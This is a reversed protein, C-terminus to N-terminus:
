LTNLAPIRNVYYRLALKRARATPLRMATPLIREERCGPPVPVCNSKQRPKSKDTRRDEMEPAGRGDGTEDFASGYRAFMSDITCQRAGAAGQRASRRVRGGVTVVILTRVLRNAQIMKYSMSSDLRWSATKKSQRGHLQRNGTCSLNQMYQAMAARVSGRLVEASAGNADQVKGLHKVKRVIHLTEVKLQFGGAPPGVVPQLM